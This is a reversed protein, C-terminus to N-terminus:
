LFSDKLLQRKYVDLHTYSVSYRCNALVEKIIRGQEFPNKGSNAHNSDISVAPNSLPKEAYLECLRILDEYHYNPMSQGHKNLIHILSLNQVAKAALYMEHWIKEM